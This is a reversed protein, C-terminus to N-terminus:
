QKNREDTLDALKKVEQSEPFSTKLQGAYFQAKKVNGMQYEIQFALWLSDATHESVLEFMAIQEKALTYEKTHWYLKALQYLAVRQNKKIKLTATFYEQASGYDPIEMVCIGATLFANARTPYLPDRLARKFNHHAEEYREHRCLFTAYNYLGSTDKRNILLAKKYYDEAGEVQELKEQLVAYIWRARSSKPDQIFARKLKEDAAQYNETAIYNAGLQVNIEAAKPNHSVQADQGYVTQQSACGMLLLLSCIIIVRM